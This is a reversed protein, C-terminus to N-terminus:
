IRVCEFFVTESPIFFHFTGVSHSNISEFVEVVPLYVPYNMLGELVELIWQVVVLVSVASLLTDIPLSYRWTTKHVLRWPTSATKV